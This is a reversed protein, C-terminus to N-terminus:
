AKHKFCSDLNVEKGHLYRFDSKYSEGHMEQCIRGREGTPLEWLQYLLQEPVTHSYFQRGHELGASSHEM